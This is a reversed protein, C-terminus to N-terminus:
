IRGFIMRWCALEVYWDMPWLMSALAIQWRPQKTAHVVEHLAVVVSLADRGNAVAPTLTITRTRWYFRNNRGVLCRVGAKEVIERGTMHKGTERMHFLDLHEKVVHVREGSDRHYVIMNMPDCRM